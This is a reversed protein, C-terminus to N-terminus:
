SRKDEYLELIENYECDNGDMNRYVISSTPISSTLNVFYLELRWNANKFMQSMHRRETPPTENNTSKIEKQEDLIENFDTDNKKCFYQKISRQYQDMEIISLIIEVSFESLLHIMFIGM